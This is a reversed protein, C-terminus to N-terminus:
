AGGAGETVVGYHAMGLNYERFRGLLGFFDAFEPSERFGEMHGEISDWVIRVVHQDPEEVGRSIEWSICHENASLIKGAEPYTARLEAGQAEPIVYRIYEVIM